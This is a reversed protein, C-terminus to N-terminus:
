EDGGGARRKTNNWKAYAADHIDAFSKPVDTAQPTAGPTLHKRDGTALFAAVGGAPTSTSAQAHATIGESFAAHLAPWNSEPVSHLSGTKAGHLASLARAAEAGNKHIYARFSQLLDNYTM